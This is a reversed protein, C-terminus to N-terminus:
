GRRRAIGLSELRQLVALVEECTTEVGSRRLRETIEAVNLGKDLSEIVLWILRSPPARELAEQVSSFRPDLEYVVRFRPEVEAKVPLFMILGKRRLGELAEYAKPLDLGARNAVEELSGEGDIHSLLAIIDPELRLCAKKGEALFLVYSLELPRERRLEEAVKEHISRACAVMLGTSRWKGGLVIAIEDEVKLILTLSGDEDRRLAIDGVELVPMLSLALGILDTAEEGRANSIVLGSSINLAMFKLDPVEGAIKRITSLVEEEM